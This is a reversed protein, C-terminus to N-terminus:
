RRWFCFFFKPSTDGIFTCPRQRTDWEGFELPIGLTSAGIYLGTINLIWSHMLLIHVYTLPPHLPGTHQWVTIPCRLSGIQSFLHFELKPYIHGLLMRTICLIIDMFVPLSPVWPTPLYLSLALLSLTFLSCVLLLGQCHSFSHLSLAFLDLMLHLCLDLSLLLLTYVLLCCGLLSYLVLHFMLWPCRHNLLSLTLYCHLLLGLQHLSLILLSLAPLGSMLHLCCNLSSLTPVLLCLGLLSLLM